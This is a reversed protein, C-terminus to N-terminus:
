HVISGDGALSYCNRNEVGTDIGSVWVEDVRNVLLCTSAERKSSVEIIAM